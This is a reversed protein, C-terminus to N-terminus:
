NITTYILSSLAKMKRTQFSESQIIEQTKDPEKQLSPLLEMASGVDILADNIM